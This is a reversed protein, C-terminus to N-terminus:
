NDDDDDGGGGRRGPKSPKDAKNAKLERRMSELERMLGELRKELADIRAERPGGQGPSAGKRVSPPAPPEPPRPANPAVVRVRRGSSGEEARVDLRIGAGSPLEKRIKEVLERVEAARDGSLTIEIHVTRGQGGRGEASGRGEGAGARFHLEQRAREAEAQAREVQRQAEGRAREAQQRAEARIKEAMAMAEKRAREGQARAQEAQRQADARHKEIQRRIDETMREVEVRRRGVADEGEAKLKRMLAQIEEQKQRLERELQQLERRMEKEDDSAERRPDERQAQAEAARPWLPLLAVLGALLLVGAWGPARPTTGRMIMTLRRKLDSVGGLGSAALPTARPEDALFELTDVLATAYTRGAGPLAAVVWADCCEEEAERLRRRAHWAVPNWWYLGLTVFEIARVWHDRRRYHALEHAVLTELADPELARLLGEPVCLLVRGGVAWLLPAVRGPLLVVEPCDRLGLRRALRWARGQLAPPAPRAHELLRRFRSARLGALAFWALSGALWAACVRTQWDRPDMLWEWARAAVDPAAVVAQSEPGSPQPCAPMERGDPRAPVVLVEPEVAVQPQEAQEEPVAPLLAPSPVPDAPPAEPQAASSPAAQPLSLRVDIFPPTLLKLLVMLWLGHVLAPRRSWRGALTALVALLAAAVTNMVAIRLLADV